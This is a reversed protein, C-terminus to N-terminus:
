HDHDDDEENGGEGLGPEGGASGRWVSAGTQFENNMTGASGGEDWNLNPPPLNAVAGDVSAVTNSFGPPASGSAAGPTTPLSTADVLQGQPNKVEYHAHCGTSNGTSGVRGIVQGQTVSTGAPLGQSQLHCYRTGWGNSCAIRVMYGCGGAMGSETIRGTCGAVTEAGCPAPLDAGAHNSSSMQGSNTMFAARTGHIQGIRTALVPTRLIDPAGCTGTRACQFEANMAPLRSNDGQTAFIFYENRLLSTKDKPAPETIFREVNNIDNKFYIYRLGGVKGRKGLPKGMMGKSEGDSVTEFACLITIKPHLKPLTDQGYAVVARLVDHAQSRCLDPVGVALMTDELSNGFVPVDKIGVYPGTRTLLSKQNQQAHANPVLACLALLVLVAFASFRTM